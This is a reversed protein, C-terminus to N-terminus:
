LEKLVYIGNGLTEVKLLGQYCTSVMRRFDSLRLAGHEKDVWQNSLYFTEGDVEFPTDFWRTSTSRTNRERLEEPSCSVFMGNLNFEGDKTVAILRNRHLYPKVSDLKDLHYLQKVVELVFGNVKNNKTLYDQTEDTIEEAVDLAEDDDDVFDDDWQVELKLQPQFAALRRLDKVKQDNSLQTMVYFGDTFQQPSKGDSARVTEVRAVVPVDKDDVTHWAEHNTSNNYIFELGIKKLTDLWTDVAKKRHIVTGDGFKVSFGISKRKAKRETRWEDQVQEAASDEIQVNAEEKVYHNAERLPEHNTSANTMREYGISIGVGPSHEITIRIPCRLVSLAKEVTQKILPIVEQQVYRDEVEAISKYFEEIDM